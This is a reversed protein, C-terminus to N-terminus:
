GGLKKEPKAAQFVAGVILIIRLGRSAYSKEADVLYRVALLSSDFFKEAHTAGLLKASKPGAEGEGVHGYM